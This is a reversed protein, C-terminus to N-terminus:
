EEGAQALAFSLVNDSLWIGHQRMKSLADRLLIPYGAQKARLMIGISGTINLGSLRAIRRGTIEDICVLPIGEQQALQIVSAEGADLSHRLMPNITLPKEYKTLWTNQCFAAVGFNDAGGALIEQCVEYPVYVQQYLFPLIDLDGLGALLSLLPTTNIVLTKRELM